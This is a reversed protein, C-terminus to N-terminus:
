GGVFTTDCNQNLTVVTSSNGNTYPPYVCMAQGCQCLGMEKDYTFATCDDFPDLRMCSAACAVVSDAQIPSTLCVSQSPLTVPRFPMVAVGLVPTLLYFVPWSQM